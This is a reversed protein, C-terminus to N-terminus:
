SAVLWLYLRHASLLFAVVAFPSVACLSAFVWADIEREDFKSNAQTSQLGYNRHSNM